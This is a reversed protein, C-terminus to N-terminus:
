GEPMSERIVQLSASITNITQSKHIHDLDFWEDARTMADEYLKRADNKKGLMFTTSALNNVALLYSERLGDDPIREVAAKKLAVSEELLDRTTQLDGKKYFVTALIGISIAILPDDSPLHNKRIQVVEEFINKALDLNGDKIAQEGRLKLDPVNLLTGDSCKYEDRPEQDVM